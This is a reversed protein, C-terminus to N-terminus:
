RGILDVIDFLLCECRIGILESINPLVYKKGNVFHKIPLGSDAMIEVVFTTSDLMSATSSHIKREVFSRKNRFRITLGGISNLKRLDNEGIVKGSRIVIRTKTMFSPRLMSYGKPHLSIFASFGDGTIVTSNSLFSRMKPNSVEVFFPRGRGLVLSNKDESGTWSFKTQSSDTLCRIKESIFGEISMEQSFGSYKCRACGSGYCIECKTKRQPIGRETKIYRGALILPRTKITLNYKKDELINLNLTLEPNYSDPKKKTTKEIRERIEKTIHSKINIKGRIKFRSRIRDERELFPTALSTGILFTDFEYKENLLSIIEHVIPDLNHM